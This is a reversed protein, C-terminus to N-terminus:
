HKPSRMSVQTVCTLLCYLAMRIRDYGVKELTMKVLGLTSISTVHVYYFTFTIGKAVNYYTCLFGRIKFVFGRLGVRPM